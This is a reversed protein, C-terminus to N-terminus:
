DPFQQQIQGPVFTLEYRSSFSMVTLVSAGDEQNLQTARSPSGAASKVVLLEHRYGPHLTVM